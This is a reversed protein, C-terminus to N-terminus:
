FSGFSGKAMPHKSIEIQIKFNKNNKLLKRFFLLFKVKLEEELEKKSKGQPQDGELANDQISDSVDDPVEPSKTINIVKAVNVAKQWLQKFQAAMTFSKGQTHSHPMFIPSYEITEANELSMAYDVSFSGCSSARRRRQWNTPKPSPPALHNTDVDKTATEEKVKEDVISEVVIPNFPFTGKTPSLLSPAQLDPVSPVSSHRRLPM